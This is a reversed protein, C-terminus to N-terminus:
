MRTFKLHLFINTFQKRQKKKQIKLFITILIDEINKKYDLTHSKVINKRTKKLSLTIEQVPM